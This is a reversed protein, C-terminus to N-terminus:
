PLTKKQKHTNYFIILHTINLTEHKAFYFHIFIRPITMKQRLFVRERERIKKESINKLFAYAHMYKPHNNDYSRM